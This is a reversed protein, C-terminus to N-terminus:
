CEEHQITAFRALTANIIKRKLWSEKARNSRREWKFLREYDEIHILPIFQPFQKYCEYEHMTITDSFIPLVWTGCVTCSRRYCM